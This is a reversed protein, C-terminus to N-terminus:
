FYYEVEPDIDKMLELVKGNGGRDIDLAIETYALLPFSDFDDEFSYSIVRGKDQTLNIPGLFSAEKPLALSGFKTLSYGYHWDVTEEGGLLEFWSEGCVIKALRRKQSESSLSYYVYSISSEIKNSRERWKGVILKLPINKNYNKYIFLVMHNPLFVIESGNISIDNVAIPSSTVGEWSYWIGVMKKEYKSLAKIDAGFANRYKEHSVFDNYVVFVQNDNFIALKKLMEESLAGEKYSFVDPQLVDNGSNMEGYHSAFRGDPMSNTTDNKKGMCGFLFICVMILCLQTVRNMRM